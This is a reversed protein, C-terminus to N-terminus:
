LISSRALSDRKKSVLFILSRSDLKESICAIQLASIQLPMGGGFCCVM